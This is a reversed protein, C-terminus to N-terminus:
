GSKHCLWILTIMGRSWHNRPTKMSFHIKPQALKSFVTPVFALDAIFIQKNTQPKAMMQYQFKYGCFFIRDVM